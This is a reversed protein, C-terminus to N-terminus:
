AGVCQRYGAPVPSPFDVTIKLRPALPNESRHAPFQRINQPNRTNTADSGTSPKMPYPRHRPRSHPSFRSIIQRGHFPHAFRNELTAVRRSIPFHTKGTPQFGRSDEPQREAVHLPNETADYRPYTKDDCQLTSLTRRRMAVTSPLRANSRGPRAGLFDLDRLSAHLASMTFM